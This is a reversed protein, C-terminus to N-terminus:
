LWSTNDWAGKGMNCDECLVQMNDLSLELEPYRSRPKIHDVHLQVGDKASAGCCCCRGETNKLVLYRLQRWATSTYFDSYGKTKLKKHCYPRMVRISRSIQSKVEKDLKKQTPRRVTHNAKNAVDEEIIPALRIVFKKYSESFNMNHGMAILARSALEYVSVGHESRVALHKRIFSRILRQNIKKRQNSM